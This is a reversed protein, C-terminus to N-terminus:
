ATDLSSPAAELPVFSGPLLKYKLSMVKVFHILDDKTIPFRISKRVGSATEYSNPFSKDTRERIFTWVGEMVSCEIIKNNYKLLDKTVPMNDFPVKSDLVMLNGVYQSILGPRREKEIRLLFDVSNLCSPKWKLVTPCRGGVYPEDVRQLVVGDTEHSVDMSLVKEICSLEFFPKQRIGFPERERVIRKTSLAQTRPGIIRKRIIEHRDHFLRDRVLDDCYAIVDYILYRPTKQGAFVDFVLEGDVLTRTLPTDGDPLLFTLTPAVFVNNDRDILFTRHKGDIFMLYRTGDAKWSVMYPHMQLLNINDRDLSIPQSGPFDNKKYNCYERCTKRVYTVTEKESVLQVDPIGGVFSASESVEARKAAPEENDDEKEDPEDLCWEPLEPADPAFAVDDFRRYLEKLYEQKYIGPPRASVFAAIAADISCNKEIVLYSAILFGTRNFGHTCHVGVIKDSRKSFSKCINIFEQVQEESPCEGFGKCNLKVYEVGADEIEKKDYFRRTNTLDIWLGIEKEGLDAGAKLAMSPYFRNEEPVMKDYRHGLPTKFPLFFALAFAHWEEFFTLSAKVFGSIVKGKRPCHLWRGPPGLEGNAQSWSRKSM